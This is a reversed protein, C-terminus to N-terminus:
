WRKRRQQKKPKIIVQEEDTEYRAETILNIGMGPWLIDAMAMCGCECDLLHNDAGGQVEWSSVGKRNTVKHESAIQAAYILNTDKHLYAARPKQEIANKLRAHFRDKLKNTDLSIIPLGDPISKGTPTKLLPKGIKLIGESIPRSSGKAAFIQVGKDAMEIIWLYVEETMSADIHKKGGGTDIAIRWFGLRDSSNEVPFTMDFIINELDNFSAVRNYDILWSDSERSWARITYWKEYKQNDIFMTLAVADEPVIQPPLSCRASLIQADTKKVLVQVWPEALTSNIFGQRKGYNDYVDIWARVLRHLDGAKLVSYIRNVHFGVKTEHGTPKTRGVMKGKRVAENKKLNTWLEDCDGCKYRATKKIQDISAEHGGQWVVQGLLHMKNDDGRYMGDKFGYAHDKSWRIPQNQGCFPCPVHWDFIIECSNLEVTVNGKDDTPTSTILRLADEFSIGREGQLSLRSAEKSARGYGDKDVEDSINIRTSRAGLMTVSGAWSFVTYGGNYFYIENKTSSSVLKEIEDNNDIAYQYRSKKVYESTSKDALTFMVSAGEQKTFYLGIGVLGVTGGYQAPKCFVIEEIFKYYFGEIEVEKCADVVARLPPVYDFSYLGKIESTPDLSINQEMWESPLIDEPPKAADLERESWIINEAAETM